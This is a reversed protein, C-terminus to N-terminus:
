DRPSPSTYLLCRALRARDGDDDPAAGDPAAVDAALDWYPARGLRADVARASAEFERLLLRHYVGFLAGAHVTANGCRLAVVDTWHRAVLEDYSSFDAGWRARGPEGRARKMAWLAAAWREREARSLERLEPVRRAGTPGDRSAASFALAALVAVLLVLANRAWPRHM